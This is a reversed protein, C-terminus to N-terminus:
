STGVARHTTRLGMVLLYGMLWVEGVVSPITLLQAVVGAGPFLYTVFASVLYGAGGVLLTWGLVQPLWRSRVVLWGLPILWLGFFVAAVGWLHGSTVYLLQVTGAADRAVALSAHGAVDLATALLAASGLIAVANAMGFVAVLGAAFSDFSRFLRYLWVATLAQTLVIALELAIGTRALSEQQVLHALTAQADDAAFLQSRVVLSGAIGAVFFGLYLLGATRATGRLDPGAVPVPVTEARSMTAVNPMRRDTM